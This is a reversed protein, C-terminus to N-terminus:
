ASMQYTGSLTATFSIDFTNGLATVTVEDATYTINYGLSSTTATSFDAQATITGAADFEFGIAPFTGSTDITYTGSDVLVEKDFVSVTLEVSGDSYLVAVVPSEATNVGPIGSVTVNEETAFRLVEVPEPEPAPATSYTYRLSATFTLPMTVESGMASVTCELAEATYALTLDVSSATASAYDPSTKMEGAKEFDVTISPFMGSTDVSYTGTDVVTDYNMGAAIKLTAKLEATNDSYLSLTLDTPVSSDMGTIGSVAVDAVAFEYSTTIATEVKGTLTIEAAEDLVEGAPVTVTFSVTGDAAPVTTNVASMGAFTIAFSSDSNQTYTGSLLDYTEVSYDGQVTISLDADDNEWLRLSADGTVSGGGIITASVDTANFTYVPTWAAQYLEIATDDALTLTCKGDAVATLTGYDAGDSTKLTYGGDTAKEWVGNEGNVADEFTKNHILILTSNADKPLSVRVVEVTNAEDKSADWAYDAEQRVTRSMTGAPTPFLCNWLVGDAYAATYVTGDYATLVLQQSATYKAEDVTTGPYDTADPSSDPTAGSEIKYYDFTGDKLEYTGADYVYMGAMYFTGDENLKLFVESKKNSWRGDTIETEGGGVPGPEPKKEDTSCAVLVGTLALCLALTTSLFLKGIKKM